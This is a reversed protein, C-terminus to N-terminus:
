VIAHAILLAAAVAGAFGASLWEALPTDTKRLKVFNIWYALPWLIALAPAGWGLALGIILGKTGMFIWCYAADRREIPPKGAIHLLWSIFLCLPWVLYDLTQWRDPFSHQSVGMHFANGHGLEMGRWAVVSLACALWAHGHLQYSVWGLLLGFLAEPINGVGWRKARESKLDDGSMRGLAAAVPILLLYSLILITM